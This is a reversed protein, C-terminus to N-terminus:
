RTPGGAQRVLAYAWRYPEREGVCPTKGLAVIESVVDGVCESLYKRQFGTVSDEDNDIFDPPRDGYRSTRSPAEFILVQRAKQTLERLMRSSTEAGYEMWWHHHVSLLLIADFNPLRAVDEPAIKHVMFACREVGAHRERAGEVFRPSVDLGLCWYGESALQASVNGLNCGIDLVSGGDKPLATRIAGLREDLAEGVKEQYPPAHKRKARRKAKRKESQRRFFDAWGKM